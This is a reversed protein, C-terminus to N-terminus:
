EPADPATLWELERVEQSIRGLLVDVIGRAYELVERDSEDSIDARLPIKLYRGSADECIEVTM